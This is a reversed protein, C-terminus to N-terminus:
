GRPHLRRYSDMERGELLITSGYRRVYFRSTDLYYWDLGKPVEILCLDVGMYQQKQIRISASVEKSIYNQVLNTLRLSFGDWGKQADYEHEIGFIIRNDIKELNRLLNDSDQLVDIYKQVELVGILIKGGESNLFGVISKLVGEKAIKDKDKAIKDERFDGKYEKDRLFCDVNFSLSGKAEFEEDEEHKLYYTINHEELAKSPLSIKEQEIYDALDTGDVLHTYTRINFGMIGVENIKEVLKKIADYKTFEVKGKILFWAFGQGLYISPEKIDKNEVLLNVLQKQFSERLQNTLTEGFVPPTIMVFFKIGKEPDYKEITHQAKLEALEPPECEDDQIEDIKKQVKKVTDESLKNIDPPFLPKEKDRWKWNYPNEEVYFPIEKVCGLDKLGEYLRKRFEAPNKGLPIWIRM